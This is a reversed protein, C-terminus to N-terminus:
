LNELHAADSVRAITKYGSSINLQTISTNEIHFGWGEQDQWYHISPRGIISQLISVILGGHTFAAVRGELPLDKLWDLARFRLDDSSEGQPVKVDYPGAHYVSFEKREQESLDNWFRGEFIGLHIERLRQDSILREEPYVCLATQKARQLDSTYILDFSLSELRKALAQAQRLGKESLLVDKQGQIRGELNSTSQGHRILYLELM